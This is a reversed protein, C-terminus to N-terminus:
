NHPRRLFNRLPLLLAVVAVTTIGAYYYGAPYQDILQRAAVV